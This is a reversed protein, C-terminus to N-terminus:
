WKQLAEIIAGVGRSLVEEEYAFSLRIYGEGGQGFVSGPICVVHAHELLFDATTQSDKGFRRVDVFAFFTGEPVTFALRSQENFAQALVRRRSAYSTVMDMVTAQSGELAALAALQTFTAASRSFQQAISHMAGVLPPPALNYGIRWGTMAYTKSFSNVIISRAKARPSLSALNRHACGDFTIKEYIEDAILILGYVEAVDVLNELEHGSMVSGTPNWPNSFLIAKTRTSLAAV